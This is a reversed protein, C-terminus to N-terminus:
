LPKDLLLQAYELTDGLYTGNWDQVSYAAKEITDVANSAKIIINELRRIREAAEEMIDAHEASPQDQPRAQKLLECIFDSNTMEDYM